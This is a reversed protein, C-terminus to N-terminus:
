QKKTSKTNCAESDGSATSIAVTDVACQAETLDEGAPGFRAVSISPGRYIVTQAPLESAEAPISSLTQEVLAVYVPPGSVIISAGDPGARLPYRDDYFALQKLNEILRALTTSKLPLFRTVEETVSSVHLASGDYYWELGYMQCLHNLFDMAPLQPLKGKVAGSVQSSLKVRLGMNQGFERLVVAIDQEVVNYPYIENPLKLPAAIAPIPLFVGAALLAATLPPGSRRKRRFIKQFM